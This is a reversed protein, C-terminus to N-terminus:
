GSYISFLKAIFNKLRIKNLPVNKKSNFDSIFKDLDNNSVNDFKVNDFNITEQNLNYIFDFEIFKINKRHSKKVQYSSFFDDKDKIDILIRGAINTGNENYNVSSEKLLIELDDKWMIKSNALSIIGEQIGIKLILNNLENINVIDKINFNLSVNLNENNLIESSLIDVLISQDDFFNKSSVGDYNFNANLYFPRFDIQGQFFNKDKSTFDLSNKDIEYNLSTSKNILSIELEGTKIKENYDLRNSINM